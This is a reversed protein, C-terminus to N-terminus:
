NYVLYKIFRHLKRIEPLDWNNRWSQFALGFMDTWLTLWIKCYLCFLMMSRRHSPFGSPIQLKKLEKRLFLSLWAQGTCFPTACMQWHGSSGRPRLLVLLSWWEKLLTCAPKRAQHQEARLSEALLVNKFLVFVSLNSLIILLRRNMVTSTALEPQLYLEFTNLYVGSCLCINWYKVSSLAGQPDQVWKAKLCSCLIRM